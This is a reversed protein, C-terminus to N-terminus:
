IIMMQFIPFEYEGGNKSYKTANSFIKPEFLEDIEPKALTENLFLEKADGSHEVDEKTM